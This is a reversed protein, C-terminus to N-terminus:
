PRAFSWVPRVTAEEPHVGAAALQPLISSELFSRMEEENRWVDCLLFGDDDPRTLHVMLGPPPGGQEGILREMSDDFADAQERTGGPVAIEVVVAM